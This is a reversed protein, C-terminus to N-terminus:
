GYIETRRAQLHSQRHKYIISLNYGDPSLRELEAKLDAYENPMAPRTSNIVHQPDGSGHQGIHEYMMCTYPDNTGPLEPFIAVVNDGLTQDASKHWKRFIVKTKYNDM